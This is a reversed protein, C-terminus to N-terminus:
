ARVALVMGIDRAIAAAAAEEARAVEADGPEDREALVAALAHRSRAEHPRLRHRVDVAIAARLWRTAALLDGSSHAALGVYGSVPGVSIGAPGSAAIRGAYPELTRRLVDARHRDGLAHAVEVLTCAGVLFVQNDRLRLEDATVLDEFIPRADDMRGAAVLARVLAVQWIRMRPHTALMQEAEPLHEVLRGRDLALRYQMGAYAVEANVGHSTRGLDLAADASRQAAEYNGTCLQHSAEAFHAYVEFWPLQVDAVRRRFQTLMARQEDIRGAEMLDTLAFLMATLELQVNNSRGAERVAILVAQTREALRDLRWLALRQALQASAVLEPDGDAEAIALAEAALEERRTPDPSPVLVSTLMSRMRVRYRLQDDPLTAIAEEMLDVLDPDAPRGIDFGVGSLSVMWGEAARALLMADGSRRGRAAAVRAAEVAADRDGLARWTDGALLALEARDRIDVAETLLADV